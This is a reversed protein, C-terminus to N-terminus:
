YAHRLKFELSLYTHTRAHTRSHVRCDFSKYAVVRQFLFNRSSSLDKQFSPWRPRQTVSRIQKYIMKLKVNSM